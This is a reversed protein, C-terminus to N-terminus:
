PRILRKMVRSIEERDRLLAQKEEELLRAGNSGLQIARSLVEMEDQLGVLIMYEVLTEADEQLIGQLGSLGPAHSNIRARVARLRNLTEVLVEQAEDDSPDRSVKDLLRMAKRVLVAHKKVNEEFVRYSDLPDRSM